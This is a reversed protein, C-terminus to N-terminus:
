HPAGVSTSTTDVEARCGTIALGTAIVLLLSLVLRTM